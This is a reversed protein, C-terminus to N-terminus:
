SRRRPTTLEIKIVDRCEHSGTLSFQQKTRRKGREGEGEGLPDREGERGIKGEGREEGEAERELEGGGVVDRPTWLLM